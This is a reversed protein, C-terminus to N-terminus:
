GVAEAFPQRHVIGVILEALEGHGEVVKQGLEIARKLLHFEEGRVGGMLQARGQRGDAAYAFHGQAGGIASRGTAPLSDGAHQLLHFLQGTQYVLQEGQGSRLAADDPRHQCPVIEAVQGPVCYRQEHNKGFFFVLLERKLDFLGALHPKVM